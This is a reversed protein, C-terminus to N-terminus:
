RSFPNFNTGRDFIEVGEAKKLRAVALYTAPTMLAEVSCKFLYNTLVLSLFLGWSFVGAASAVTVFVATDVLEGV